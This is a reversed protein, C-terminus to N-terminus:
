VDASQVAPRRAKLWAALTNPAVDLLKAIDHKNIKKALYGDILKAHEDLKLVKAPGAPRGLIMGEAKRKALAEKTRSSIFDREIEAALGLVTAVIKAQMSGDLVIGNKVIHLHVGKAVCERMIELVQLTSRALRSVESVVLVDGPVAQSVINGLARARWDNKGSATDEVFLPAHFKKDVCYNVVGHKQNDLDQADTSVRLYAFIKTM